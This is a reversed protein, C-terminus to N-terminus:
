EDESKVDWCDPASAEEFKMRVDILVKNHAVITPFVLVMPWYGTALLCLWIFNLGFFVGHVYLRKFFYEEKLEPRIM